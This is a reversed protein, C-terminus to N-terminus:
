RAGEARGALFLADSSPLMLRHEILHLAPELGYGLRQRDAAAGDLMDEPGYFAPHTGGVESRPAELVNGGFGAQRDQGVVDLAGDGDGANCGGELRYRASGLRRASAM